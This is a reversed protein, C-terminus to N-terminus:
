YDFSSDVRIGIHTSSWKYNVGMKLLIMFLNYYIGGM